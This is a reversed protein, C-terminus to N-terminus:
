VEFVTYPGMHTGYPGQPIKIIGDGTLFGFSLALLLVDDLLWPFSVSCLVFTGFVFIPDWVGLGSGLNGVGLGMNEPLSEFQAWSPAHNTRIQVQKDFKAHKPDVHMREAFTIISNQMM